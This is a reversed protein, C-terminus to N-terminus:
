PGAQDGVVCSGRGPQFSAVLDKLVIVVQGNLRRRAGSDFRRIQRGTGKHSGAQEVTLSSASDDEPRNM